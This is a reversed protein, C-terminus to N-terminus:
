ALQRETDIRRREGRCLVVGGPQAIDGALSHEGLEFPDHDRITGEIAQLQHVAGSRHRDHKRLQTVQPSDLLRAIVVEIHELVGARHEGLRNRERRLRGTPQALVRVRDVLQERLGERVLEIAPLREAEARQKVIDGLGPRAADSGLSPDREDAMVHHPRLECDAHQCPQTGAVTESIVHRCEGAVMQAKSEQNMLHRKITPAM